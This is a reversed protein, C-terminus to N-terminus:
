LSVKTGLKYIGDVLPPTVYFRYFGGARIQEDRTAAKWATDVEGAHLSGDFQRSYEDNTEGGRVLVTPLGDFSMVAQTKGNSVGITGDDYQVPMLPTNWVIVPVIGDACQVEDLVSVVNATKDWGWTRRLTTAKGPYLGQLEAVFKDGDQAFVCTRKRSPVQSGGLRKLFAKAKVDWLLIVNMAEPGSYDHQYIGTRAGLLPFGGVMLMVDGRPENRVLAEGAGFYVRVTKDDDRWDSRDYHYGTVKTTYDLPLGMEEPSQPKVNPNGILCRFILEECGTTKAYPWRTLMWASLAAIQPDRNGTGAALLYGLGTQWLYRGGYEYNPIPFPRFGTPKGTTSFQPVQMVQHLLLNPVRNFWALDLSEIDGTSSEFASRCFALAAQDALYPWGERSGGDPQWTAKYEMNYLNGTWWCGRWKAVYDRDTEGHIALALTMGCGADLNYGNWMKDLPVKGDMTAELAEVIRAVVIKRQDPTLVDRLWSYGLAVPQCHTYDYHSGALNIPKLCAALLSKVAVDRYQDVTLKYRGIPLLGCRAIAAACLCRDALRIDSLVGTAPDAVEAYKIVDAWVSPTIRDVYKEPPLITDYKIEPIPPPPPPPDPPPKPFDDDILRLLVESSAITVYQDSPVVSVSITEEGEVIEDNLSELGVTAETQGAPITISRPCVYDDDITATGAFQLPVDFDAPMAHSISATIKVAGGSEPLTLASSDTSLTIVLPEPPPPPPPPPPPTPVEPELLTEITRLSDAAGSALVRLNAIEERIKQLDIVGDDGM